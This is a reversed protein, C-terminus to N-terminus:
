KEHLPRHAPSGLRHHVAPEEAASESRHTFVPLGGIECDSPIHVTVFWEADGGFPEYFSLSYSSESDALTMIFGEPISELPLAAPRASSEFYEDAM